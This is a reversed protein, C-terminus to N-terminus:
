SPQPQSAHTGNRGPSEIFCMLNGSFTGVLTSVIGPESLFTAVEESGEPGESGQSQM